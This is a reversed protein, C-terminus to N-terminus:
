VGLAVDEFLGLFFKLLYLSDCLYPVQLLATLLFSVSRGSDLHFHTRDLCLGSLVLCHDLVAAGLFGRGGGSSSRSRIIPHLSDIEFLLM